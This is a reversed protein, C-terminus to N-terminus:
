GRWNAQQRALAVDADSKPSTKTMQNTKLGLMQRVPVISPMALGMVALGFSLLVVPNQDGARILAGFM